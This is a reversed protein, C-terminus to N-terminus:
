LTNLSCHSVFVATPEINHVNVMQLAVGPYLMKYVDHGMEFLKLRVCDSSSPQPHIHLLHAFKTVAKPVTASSDLFSPVSMFKKWRYVPHIHASPTHTPILQPSNTGWSECTIVLKPFAERLAPGLEMEEVENETELWKFNQNGHSANNFFSPMHELFHFVARNYDLDNSLRLGM